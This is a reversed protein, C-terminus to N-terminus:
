MEREETKRWGSRGSMTKDNNWLRLGDDQSVEFIGILRQAPIVFNFTGYREETNVLKQADDVFAKNTIIRHNGGWPAIVRVSYEIRGSGGIEEMEESAM